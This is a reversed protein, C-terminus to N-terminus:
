RRVFFAGVFFLVLSYIIALAGGVAWAVSGQALGLIWAASGANAILAKALGDAFLVGFPNFIFSGFVGLAPLHYFFNAVLSVASLVLIIAGFLKLLRM